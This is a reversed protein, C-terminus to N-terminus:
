VDLINWVFRVLATVIAIQYVFLDVELRHGTFGAALAFALFGYCTWVWANVADKAIEPIKMALIM